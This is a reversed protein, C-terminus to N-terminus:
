WRNWKQQKEPKEYGLGVAKVGSTKLEVARTFEHELRTNIEAATGSSSPHIRLVLLPGKKPDIASPTSRASTGSPLRTHPTQMCHMSCPHTGAAVEINSKKAGLLKLFKSKQADSEFSAATWDNWQAHHPRPVCHQSSPSSTTHTLAPVKGTPAQASKSAAAPASHSVPTETVVEESVKEKMSKKNKKEVHIEEAVEEVVEEVVEKAEKKEKKSKKKEISAEDSAEVSAEELPEDQDQKKEKKSKKKKASPEPASEAKAEAPAEQADEEQDKHKSKKKSKKEKKSEETQDDVTANEEIAAPQDEEADKQKNKKSKKPKPDDAM